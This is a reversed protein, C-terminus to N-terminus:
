DWDGLTDCATQIRQMDENPPERKGFIFELDPETMM